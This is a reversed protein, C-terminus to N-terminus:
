PVSSAPATGVPPNPLVGESAHSPSCTASRSASYRPPPPRRERDRSERRRRRSRSCRRATRRPRRASRGRSRATGSRGLLVFIVALHELGLALVDVRHHDGGGIVHVRRHRQEGHLVALVDVALLRKVRVTQSACSSASAAAFYLTAVWIPLWPQFWSPVFVAHSIKQDPSIPSTLSSWAQVPPM